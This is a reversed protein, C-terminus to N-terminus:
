IKKEPLLKTMREIFFRPSPKQFLRDVVFSDLAGIVPGLVSGVLPIAGLATSVIWRMTKVPTSQIAPVDTLIKVYEKAIKVADDDSREHFWKRFAEGDNSQRLKIIDAIRSSDSLVLEGINPVNAIKRLVAFPKH